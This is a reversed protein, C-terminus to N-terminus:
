ENESEQQLKKISARRERAKIAQPTTSLFEFIPKAVIGREKRIVKRQPNTTGGWIGQVDTQVAYELCEENFHCKNCIKIAERNVRLLAGEPFWMEPDVQACLQSGDFEPYM